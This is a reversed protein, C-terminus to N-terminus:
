LINKGRAENFAAQLSARQSALHKSEDVVATHLEKVVKLEEALVNLRENIKLRTLERIDASRSIEEMMRTSLELAGEWERDAKVVLDNSRILVDKMDDMKKSICTALDGLRSVESKVFSEMSEVSKERLALEAKAADVALMSGNVAALRGAIDLNREDEKLALVKSQLAGIESQKAVREVEMSALVCSHQERAVDIERTIRSKELALFKELSDIDVKVLEKAKELLTANQDLLM